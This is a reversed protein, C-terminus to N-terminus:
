GSDGILLGFVVKIVVFSIRITLQQLKCFCYLLPYTQQPTTHKVISSGNKELRVSDTISKFHIVEAHSKRVRGWIMWYSWEYPLYVVVHPHSWEIKRKRERVWRKRAEMGRKWVTNDMWVAAPRSPHALSTLDFCFFPPNDTLVSKDNGGYLAFSQKWGLKRQWLPEWVLANQTNCDLLTGSMVPCPVADM